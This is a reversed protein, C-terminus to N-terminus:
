WAFGCYQKHIHIIGEKHAEVVNKPYMLRLAIDKSIEGAMYDRQTSLITPNKNANESAVEDNTENIIGLIADDLEQRHKLNKKEYCGLIYNKALGVLNHRILATEVMSEIEASNIQREKVNSLVEDAVEKIEESTAFDDGDRKNARHLVTIIKMINFEETDGNRKAVEIM